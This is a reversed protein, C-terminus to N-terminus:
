GTVETQCSGDPSAPESIIFIESRRVAAKPFSVAVLTNGALITNLRKLNEKEILQVLAVLEFVSLGEAIRTITKHLFAFVGTDLNDVDVSKLAITSVVALKSFAVREWYGVDQQGTVSQRREQTRADGKELLTREDLGDTQIMSVRIDKPPKKFAECSWLYLKKAKEFITEARILLPVTEVATIQVDDGISRLTEAVFM